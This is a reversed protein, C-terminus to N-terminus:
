VFCFIDLWKMINHTTKRIFLCKPWLYTNAKLVWKWLFDFVKGYKAVTSSLVNGGTIAFHLTYVYSLLVTYIKKKCVLKELQTSVLVASAIFISDLEFILVYTSRVACKSEWCRSMMISGKTNVQFGRKKIWAREKGLICLKVPLIDLLM